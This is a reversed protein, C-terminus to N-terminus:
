NGRPIDPLDKSGEQCAPKEPSILEWYRRTNKNWTFDVIRPPQNKFPPASDKFYCKITANAPPQLANRTRPESICRYYLAGTKKHRFCFYDTEQKQATFCVAPGLCLAALFLSLVLIRNAPM